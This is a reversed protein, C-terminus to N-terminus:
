LLLTVIIPRMIFQAWHWNPGIKHFWVLRLIIYTLQNNNTYIYIYIYIFEEGLYVVCNYYHIKTFGSLVIQNLWTINCYFPLSPITSMLTSCLFQVKSNLEKLLKWSYVCHNVLCPRQNKNLHSVVKRLFMHLM